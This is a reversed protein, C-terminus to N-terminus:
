TSVTRSESVSAGAQDYVTITVNYEQKKDIRIERTFSDSGGSVSPIGTTYVENGTNVNVVTITANKLDGDPDSLGASVTIKGSGGTATVSVSDISPPSKIAGPSVTKVTLNDSGGATAYITTAGSGSNWGMDVIAQGTEDTTAESPSFGTVIGTSNSAYDVFVGALSDDNQTVNATVSIPDPATDPDIVLTNNSSSYQIGNNNNVIWSTNWAVTYPSTDNGVGGNPEERAPKVDFDVYEAPAPNNTIRATANQATGTFEFSVRGDGGTWKVDEGVISPPDMTVSVNKKVLNQYKDRVEFTVTEGVTATEADTTIYAPDPSETKSGVGVRAARFTYNYTANLTVQVRGNAREVDKVHPNNPPDLSTSNEWRGASMRSPFTITIPARDNGTLEITQESDYPGSLVEPDIATAGVGNQFYTGNLTVLTITPNGSQNTVLKQDTIAPVTEVSGFDNYLLGYELVSSPATNYLNYQPEYVLSKTTYNLVNDEEFFDKTEPNSGAYTANAITVTGSKNTKLTGTAPPPNVFFARVPYRTGLKVSEPRGAGSGAASLISNRVTVLDSQVAQSHQFEIAKNEQPVVYAQYTSLFIVLIAFLLIAGIQVTVGREDEPLRM